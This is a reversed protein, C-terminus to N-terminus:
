TKETAAKLLDFAEQATEFAHAMSDHGQLAALSAALAELVRPLVRRVAVAELVDSVLVHQAGFLSEDKSMGEAWLDIELENLPVRGANLALVGEARSRLTLTIVPHFEEDEPATM